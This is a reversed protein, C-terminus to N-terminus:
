SKAGTKKVVTKKTKPRPDAFAEDILDIRKVLDGRMSHLKAPDSAALNRYRYRTNIDVQCEKCYSSTGSGRMSPSSSFESRNKLQKCGLCTIEEPLSSYKPKRGRTEEPPAATAPTGSKKKSM